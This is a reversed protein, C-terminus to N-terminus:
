SNFTLHLFILKHSNKCVLWIFVLYLWYNCKFGPMQLVSLYRECRSVKENTNVHRSMKQLVIWVQYIKTDCVATLSFLRSYNNRVSHCHLTQDSTTVVRMLLLNWLEVSKIDSMTEPLNNWCLDHGASGCLRAKVSNTSGNSGTFARGRYSRFLTNPPVNFRVWGLPMTTLENAEILLTLRRRRKLVSIPLQTRTWNGTDSM